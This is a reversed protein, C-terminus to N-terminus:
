LKCVGNDQIYTLRHKIKKNCYGKLQKLDQGQYIKM